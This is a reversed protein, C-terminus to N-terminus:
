IRVHELDTKGRILEHEFMTWQTDSWICIMKFQTEWANQVLFSNMFNMLNIFFSNMHIFAQYSHM